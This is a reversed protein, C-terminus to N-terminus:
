VLIRFADANESIAYERFAEEYTMTRGQRKLANLLRVEPDSYVRFSIEPTTLCEFRRARPPVVRGTM